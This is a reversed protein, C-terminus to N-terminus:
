TTYWGILILRALPVLLLNGEQQVKVGKIKETLVIHVNPMQINQDGQEITEKEIKEQISRCLFVNGDSGVLCDKVCDVGLGLKKLGLYGLIPHTGHDVLHFPLISEWTGVKVAINCTGIVKSSSGNFGMLQQQSPRVMVGNKPCFNKHIGNYTSSTDM